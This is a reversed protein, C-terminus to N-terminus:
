GGILICIVRFYYSKLFKAFLTDGARMLLYIILNITLILLSFLPAYM